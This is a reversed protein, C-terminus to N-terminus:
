ILPKATSSQIPRGTSSWCTCTAPGPTGPRALDRSEPAQAHTSRTKARRRRRVPLARPLCDILFCHCSLLTSLIIWGGVMEDHLLEAQIPYLHAYIHKVNCTVASSESIYAVHGGIAVLSTEMTLSTHECECRGGGARPLRISLYV